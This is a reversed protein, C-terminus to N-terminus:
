RAVKMPASIAENDSPLADRADVITAVARFVVKGAQADQPSFTYNFAFQTTRSGSRVPVFQTSSAILEFGGGAVSRYLEVTVTEPYLYNRIAIDIERTQGTSASKPATIKTIAVDHTRVHVTQSTSATRGDYTTVVLTTLYDGDATYQHSVFDGNATGGDGFNWAVSQFGAQAPDYSGNFFQVTDYKSPDFPSFSFGAVPSPTNELILIGAGTMGFLTGIQFYYTQGAQAHFNVKGSFTSCGVAALNDLSIGSYVTLFPVIDDSEIHSTVSEDQTPTFSYWVTQYPLSSSACSPAPEGSEFIAGTNDFITTSPFSSINTANSFDDNAPPPIQELNVQINGIQGNLSGVQLYYTQGAEAVFGGSSEGACQVFILNNIGSGSSRYVNLNNNIVTGQTNASVVMTQIPTFSYWVTTDMFICQQPEDPELTADTIDVTTTFPLSNIAQADAFNDNVPPAALAPTFGAMSLTLGLILGTFWRFIRHSM